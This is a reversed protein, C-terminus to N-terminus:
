LNKLEIDMAWLLDKGSFSSLFYQRRIGNIDFEPLLTQYKYFVEQKDIFQNKSLHLDVTNNIGYRCASDAFDEPFPHNEKGRAKGFATQLPRFYKRCSSLATRAAQYRWIKDAADELIKEYNPPKQNGLAKSVV